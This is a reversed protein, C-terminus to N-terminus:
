RGKLSAPLHKFCLLDCVLPRKPYKQTSHPDVVQLLWLQGGLICHWIEHCLFFYRMGLLSLGARYGPSPCKYKNHKPPAPVPM